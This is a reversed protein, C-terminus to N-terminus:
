LYIGIFDKSFRFTTWVCDILNQRQRPDRFAVLKVLEILFV